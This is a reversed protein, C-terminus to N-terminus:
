CSLPPCAACCRPPRLRPRPPSSSGAAGAGATIALLRAPLHGALVAAAALGSGAGILSGAVGIITGALLV